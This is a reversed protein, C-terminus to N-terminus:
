IRDPEAGPGSSPYWIAKNVRGGLWMLGISRHLDKNYGGVGVGEFSFLLLVPVLAAVAVGTVRSSALILFCEVLPLFFELANFPAVGPNGRVNERM